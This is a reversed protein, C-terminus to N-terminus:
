LKDRHMAAIHFKLANEDMEFKRNEPCYDCIVWGDDPKELPEIPKELPEIVVSWACGYSFGNDDVIDNAMIPLAQICAEQVDYLSDFKDQTGSDWYITYM